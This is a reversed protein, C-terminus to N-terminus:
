KCELRGDADGGAKATAREKNWAGGDDSLAHSLFATTVRQVAAVRSRSANSQQESEYTNIGGLPHEADFLTFLAESGPALDYAERWWEPGRTSLPSQDKDGCIVLSQMTMGSFDPNMFPFHDKALPTLNDGGTGPICLLVGAKVRGDALRVIRGDKPDPHTAGLLMSATRAGWSLGAVAIKSRDIRGRIHPAAQEIEDMRDLLRVMDDERHRWFEAARPDDPALGCRWSDLHDPQIVAFGQAAWYDALVDYAYCSPRFDHSFLIVPLGEGRGPSAVRYELDRGREPASIAMPAVAMISRTLPHPLTESVRPEM